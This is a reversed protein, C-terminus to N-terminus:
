YRFPAAWSYACNMTTTKLTFGVIVVSNYSRLVKTLFLFLFSFLKCIKGSEPKTSQLHRQLGNVTWSANGDMITWLHAKMLAFSYMKASIYTLLMIHPISENVHKCRCTCRTHQYIHYADAGAMAFLDQKISYTKIYSRSNLSKSQQTSKPTQYIHYADAGAM